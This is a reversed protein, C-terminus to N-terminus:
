VAEDDARVTKEALLADLDAPDILLTGFPKTARLRGRRIWDRVNYPKTRLRDAVQQVTLFQQPGVPDQDPTGM